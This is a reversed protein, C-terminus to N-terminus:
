IISINIKVLDSFTPFEKVSLGIADFALQGRNDGWFKHLLITIHHTYFLIIQLNINSKWSSSSSYPFVSHTPFRCFLKGYTSDGNIRPQKRRTYIHVTFSIIVSTVQVLKGHICPTFSFDFLSCLNGDNDNSHWHLTM